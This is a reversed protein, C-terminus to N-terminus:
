AEGSDRRAVARDVAGVLEDYSFRTAGGLKIPPPLTGDKIRRWVSSVSIGLLAAAAPISLLKPTDAM